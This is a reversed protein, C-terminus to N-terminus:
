LLTHPCMHGLAGRLKMSCEFVSEDAHRPLQFKWCIRIYRAVRCATVTPQSFVLPASYQRQKSSARNVDRESHCTLCSPLEPLLIMGSVFSPWHNRFHTIKTEHSLLLFSYFMDGVIAHKAVSEVGPLKTPLQKQQAM